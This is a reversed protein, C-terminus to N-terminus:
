MLNFLRRSRPAPRWQFEFFDSRSGFQLRHGIKVPLSYMRGDMGLYCIENGDGRWRLVQAGDASIRTRDEILRPHEGGEFAQVYAKPRGSENTTFAVRTGDPSFAPSLNFPTM